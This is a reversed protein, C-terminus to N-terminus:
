LFLRRRHTIVVLTLGDIPQHGMAQCASGRPWSTSIVAFDAWRPAHRGQVAARYPVFLLCMLKVTLDLARYLM